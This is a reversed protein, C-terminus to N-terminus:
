CQLIDRKAFMGVVELKKEGGPKEFFNADLKELTPAVDIEDNGLALFM